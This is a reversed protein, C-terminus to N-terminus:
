YKVDSILSMLKQMDEPLEIEFDLQKLTVPHVFSLKKAHLMQRSLSKIYDAINQSLTFKRKKNEVGYVPDGVIHHGIHQMHLRIQHTRGTELSCEVLSMRGSLFTNMIRYNTIAVKGSEDDVVSMKKRDHKNKAVNTKITDSTKYPLGWIVAQYIRKIKREALDASLKAHAKDNKAVVILGTTDKDLRHVIGPRSIGAVSSLNNKYNALLGNVLTDTTNGAGPHTTLGAPKNIILLHDDEYIINLDMKKPKIQLPEEAPITIVYIDGFSTQHKNNKIPEGNLSVFGNKILNQIKSRTIDEISESLFKDIRTNKEQEVTVEINKNSM